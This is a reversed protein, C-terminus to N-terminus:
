GNIRLSSFSTLYTVLFSNSNKSQSSIQIYLQVLPCGLLGLLGLLELLGLLGPLLAEFYNLM